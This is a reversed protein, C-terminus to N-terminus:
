YDMTKEIGLKHITMLFPAKHSTDGNKLVASFM